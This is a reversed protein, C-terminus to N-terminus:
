DASSFRWRNWWRLLNASTFWLRRCYMGFCRVSNTSVIPPSLCTGMLQCQSMGCLIKVSTKFFSARWLTRQKRMPPQCIGQHPAPTWTPASLQARYRCQVGFAAGPSNGWTEFDWPVNLTVAPNPCWLGELPTQGRREREWSAEHEIGKTLLVEDIDEVCNLGISTSALEIFYSLWIAWTLLPLLPFEQILKRYPSHLWHLKKCCWYPFLNVWRKKWVTDSYWSFRLITCLSGDLYEVHNCHLHTFGVIAKWLSAISTLVYTLFFWKCFSLPSWFSFFVCSM